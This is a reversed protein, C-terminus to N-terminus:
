GAQKQPGEWCSYKSAALVPRLTDTTVQLVERACSHPVSYDATRQM